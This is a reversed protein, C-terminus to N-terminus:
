KHILKSKLILYISELIAPAYWYGVGEFEADFQKLMAQQVALQQRAEDVARDAIRGPGTLLLWSSFLIVLVAIVGIVKPNRILRQV